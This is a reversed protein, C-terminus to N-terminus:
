NLNETKKLFLIKSLSCSYGGYPVAPSVKQSECGPCTKMSLRNSQRWEWTILQSGTISCVSHLRHQSMQLGANLGGAGWGTKSAQTLMGEVSCFAFSCWSSMGSMIQYQLRLLKVAKKVQRRDEKVKSLLFTKMLIIHFIMEIQPQLLLHM